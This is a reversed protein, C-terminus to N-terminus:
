KKRKTTAVASIETNYKKTNIHSNAFELLENFDRAVALQIYIQFTVGSFRKNTAQIVIPELDNM